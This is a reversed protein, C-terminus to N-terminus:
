GLRRAIAEALCCELGAVSRRHLGEALVGPRFLTAPHQCAPEFIPFWPDDVNACLPLIVVQAIGPCAESSARLGDRDSIKRDDGVVHRVAKQHEGRVVAAIESGIPEKPELAERGVNGHLEVPQTTPSDVQGPRSASSRDAARKCAKKSTGGCAMRSTEGPVISVLVVKALINPSSPDRLTERPSSPWNKGGSRHFSITASFRRRDAPLGAGSRYSATPTRASPVRKGIRTCTVVRDRSAPLAWATNMVSRLRLNGYGALPGPRTRVHVPGAVDSVGPSGPGRRRHRDRSCAIALTSPRRPCIGVSAAAAPVGAVGHAFRLVRTAVPRESMWVTVPRAMRWACGIYCGGLLSKLHFGETRLEDGPQRDSGLDEASRGDEHDQGPRDTQRAM